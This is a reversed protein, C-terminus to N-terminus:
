AEEGEEEEVIGKREKIKKIVQPELEKPLPEYVIDILSYFGLGATSSKLDSNFGFLESVPVKAIIIQLGREEKMELIQGRRNNVEKTAGGM